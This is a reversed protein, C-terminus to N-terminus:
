SKVFQELVKRFKNPTISLIGTERAKNKQEACVYGWGALFPTVGLHKSSILFDVQDEVYASTSDHNIQGLIAALNNVKEHSPTFTVQSEPFKIGHHRLIELVYEKRKTSLIHVRNLNDYNKLFKGAKFLPNLDLWFNRESHLMQERESYLANKYNQIEDKHSSSFADFSSQDPISTGENIVNWLIIYDEGSRIYPRLQLFNRKSGPSIKDSVRRGPHTLRQYARHSSVMCEHVSDCIVGDFDTVLIGRDM